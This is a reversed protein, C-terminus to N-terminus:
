GRSRRLFSVAPRPEDEPLVHEAAPSTQSVSILPGPSSPAAAGAQDADQGQGHEGAGDAPRSVEGGPEGRGAADAAAPQGPPFFYHARDHPWLRSLGAGTLRGCVTRKGSQALFGCALATFTHFSPATFLPSLAALLTMLSAPVPVTADLRVEEFGWAM